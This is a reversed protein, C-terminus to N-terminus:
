PWRQGAEDCMTSVGAFTGGPTERNRQIIDKGDSDAGVLIIRVKNTSDLGLYARFGVASPQTILNLITQLNFTESVPLTDNGQFAGALMTERNAIFNDIMTLGEMVPLTHNIANLADSFPTPAPKNGLINSM